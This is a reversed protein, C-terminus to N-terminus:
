LSSQIPKHSLSSQQSTPPLLLPYAVFDKYVWLSRSKHPPLAFAPYNMGGKEQPFVTLPPERPHEESMKGRMGGHKYCSQSYAKAESTSMEM